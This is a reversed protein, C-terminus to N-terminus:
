AASRATSLLMVRDWAPAVDAVAALLVLGIGAAGVLFGPEGSWTGGAQEDGNWALFGALGEGPRRLALTRGIWALAAEKMLPDGSAQYLRNFVHGLGASGHCLSADVAGAAELSRTAARRAIALAQAQWDERGFSRAAGLLVGAVGPDGYCWASRTPEPAADPLRLAPFFSDSPAPLRNDLLWNVAGESLRAVRPDRVGADHAAALFGIVGPVGHAVGLNWCGRPRKVRQSEALWEPPTYWTCGRGEDRAALALHDVVKELLAAADPHPLREVLYIGFGALGSILEYPKVNEARALLESLAADVAATLDEDGEFFERTLHELVWGVGCFGSYLSPSLDMGALAELCEGVLELAREGSDSGPRAADLYAFFLAPGLKGNALGPDPARAGTADGAVRERLAREVGAIADWCGRCTAADAIPEWM